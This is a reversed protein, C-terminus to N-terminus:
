GSLIGYYQHISKPTVEDAENLEEKFDKAEQMSRFRKLCWDRRYKLQENSVLWGAQGVISYDANTVCYGSPFNPHNTINLKM